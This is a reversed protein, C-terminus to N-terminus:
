HSGYSSPPLLSPPAAAPLCLQLATTSDVHHKWATTLQRQSSLRLVKARLRSGENCPVSLTSWTGCRAPDQTAQRAGAQVGLRPVGQGQSAAEGARALLVAGTLAVQEGWHTTTAVCPTALRKM